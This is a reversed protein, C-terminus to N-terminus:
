GDMNLYDLLYMCAQLKALPSPNRSWLRRSYHRPQRQFLIGWSSLLVSDTFDADQRCCKAVLAITTNGGQCLEMIRNPCTAVNCSWWCLLALCDRHCSQRLKWTAHTHFYDQSGSYYGSLRSIHPRCDCSWKWWSLGGRGWVEIRKPSRSPNETLKRYKSDLHAAFIYIRALHKLCECQEIWYIASLLLKILLLKILLLRPAIRDVRWSIM